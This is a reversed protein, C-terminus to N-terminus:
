QCERKAREIEAVVVVTATAKSLGAEQLDTIAKDAALAYEDRVKKIDAVLKDTRAGFADIIEKMKFKGLSISQLIQLPICVCLRQSERSASRAHRRSNCSGQESAEGQRRL